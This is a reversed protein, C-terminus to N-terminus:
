KAVTMALRSLPTAIWCIVLPKREADREPFGKRGESNNVCPARWLRGKPFAMNNNINKADKNRIVLPKREAGREPFGKHAAESNSICHALAM